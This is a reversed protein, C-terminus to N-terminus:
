DPTGEAPRRVALRGSPSPGTGFEKEREAENKKKQAPFGKEPSPFRKRSQSGREPSPFRKQAPFGKRPQAATPAEHASRPAGMPM